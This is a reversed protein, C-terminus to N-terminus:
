PEGAEDGEGGTASWEKVRALHEVDSYKPAYAPYPQSLYPTEEDRYASLLDRAGDLHAQALAAFDADKGGAQSEKAEAPKLAVYSGSPAGRAFDPGFAGRAAMAAELTLQPAFGERVERAGPTAGTKFDVVRLGGERLREIRDPTASLTFTSGDDLALALTGRREVQTQALDARRESEWSLYRDLTAEVRPWELARFNPEDLAAAFVERAIAALRARADAPLAGAPHAGAFRAVIEHLATGLSAVDEPLGYGDLPKLKLISEVHIAYPDRRLTEVRTVSLADPRLALPPRPAPRVAPRARDPDDPPRPADLRRAWALPIEGRARAARWIAEGAVAEMRQLLRSAVTPAGGRRRARALAVDAVGMAMVFDHAAQGVRREPPSLGAAARMPRNLFADTAAVAPWVGEDLGGIVVRDVDILRAELAGLIALRPHGPQPTMAEADLLRLMFAAYDACTLMLGADAAERTEDLLQTLAARDRGQRASEDPATATLAALAARHADIWDPLPEAGRAHLARLPAFARALRRALTEVAAWRAGDLARLSPHARWDLAAARALAILRDPDALADDVPRGRLCAVEFDDRAQPWDAEAFGLRVDRHALVAAIDSPPTEAAAAEVVLGALAGAAARLLQEGGSDEIEVGWRAMEARVRRALGRDPTVLAARKGPTELTERLAVACALAEEREDQAEILAVGALAERLDADSLRKKRERWRHTLEAPRLAESLFKARLALAPAPPELEVVDRRQVGLIDLLRRLTAQPHGAGSAFGSEASKNWGIANWAEDDLDRDLGPLVVAGNPSAAIAALLTATAANTGTTGVAVVPGSRGEALKRTQRAILRARREAADILGMDKLAAPWAERAVDLFRLTIQWYRDLDGTVLHDLRPWDVSEIRMEDILAALDSALALASAPTAAVLNAERDAYVPAGEEWVIAGKLAQGWALILRMLRLRRAMDGIAPPIAPDPDTDEEQPDRPWGEREDEFAGLPLIAPLILARAGAADALAQAFARAARRSPVYVSVGALALPDAPDPLPVLRGAILARATAALM